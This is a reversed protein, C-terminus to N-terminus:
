QLLEDDILVEDYTESEVETVLLGLTGGIYYAYIEILLETEGVADITWTTTYGYEADEFYIDNTDIGSAYVIPDSTYNTDDSGDYSSDWNISYSSGSTLIFTCYISERYPIYLVNWEDSVELDFESQYITLSISGHVSSDSVSTVTILVSGATNGTVVGDSSVSAISSDSTSWLVDSIDDSESSIVLEISDELVIYDTDSDITIVNIEWIAYLTVDENTIELESGPAYSTGEGDALTNWSDFVYGELVLDDTDESVTITSYANYYTADPVPIVVEVEEEYENIYVESNDNSYYTVLRREYATIELDVDEGSSLDTTEEGHYIIDDDEDYIDLEFLRDSGSLVEVSVTNSTFTTIIDDFDDGSVTLTYSSISARTSPVNLSVTSYISDNSNDFLDCGMLIFLMSLILVSLKTRKNYSM